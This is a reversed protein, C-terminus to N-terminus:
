TFTILVMESRTGVRLPPGWTGAGTSTYVLLPGFRHLGSTFRGYVNQTIWTFPPLQGGHTHGSLQFSFGAQEVTPLRTPAHNLLISPRARDLKMGDLAAKMRLPSSSSHYFVGAVQLGDVTVLEDRLVRIGARGIAEIYHAPDTFEEHNGTSFYIGLSPTLQRLPALLRDLDGKTGDFVDGPLFVIDPQLRAAKAAVRRCFQVGNVPGLHLDSVLVARRGRWSAPLDPLQVSIRRVRLIRANFLGYLGLLAAIGFLIAALLLRIAAPDEPIHSLRLGLWAVRVLISAWFFFNLLGLWVSALWYILRVAPNSFRFALLSATVFSFALILMAARLGSLTVPALGPSFAIWTGLVFWHALLLFGQIVFIALAPWAKLRIERWGDNDHASASPTAFASRVHAHLLRKM